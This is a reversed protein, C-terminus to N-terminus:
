YKKYANDLDNYMKKKNSEDSNAPPAINMKKIYIKIEIHSKIKKWINKLIRM